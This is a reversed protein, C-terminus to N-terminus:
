KKTRINFRHPQHNQIVSEAVDLFGAVNDIKRVSVTTVPQFAGGDKSARQFHVKDGRRTIDVSRWSLKHKGAIVGAPTIAIKGLKMSRGDFLAAGMRSGTIDAIIPAIAHDFQRPDGLRGSFRFERGDSMTLRHAGTKILPRGFVAIVRAGERYRKVKTWSYRALIGDREWTFGQDFVRVRENKLTLAARINLIFRIFLAALVIVAVVVGGDLLLPNVDALADAQDAELFDADGSRIQQLLYFAGSVALIAFTLFIARRRHPTRETQAQYILRPSQSM